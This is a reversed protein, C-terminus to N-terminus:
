KIKNLKKRRKLIKFKKLSNNIFQKKNPLTPKDFNSLGQNIRNLQECYDYSAEWCEKLLKQFKKENM